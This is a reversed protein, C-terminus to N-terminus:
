ANESQIYFQNWIFYYMYILFTMYIQYLSSLLSKGFKVTIQESMLKKEQLSNM